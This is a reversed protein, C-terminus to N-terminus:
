DTWKWFYQFDDDKLNDLAYDRAEYYLDSYLASLKFNEKHYHEWCKMNLVIVLETLYEVNDKWEEFARKYTDKVADMGFADAIRFDSYFTTKSVYGNELTFDSM